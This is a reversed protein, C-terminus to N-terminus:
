CNVLEWAGHGMGWAGHGMVWSGSGHVWSDMFGHVWSDHTVPDHTVRVRGRGTAM